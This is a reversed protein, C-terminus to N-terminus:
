LGLEEISKQWIILSNLSPHRLEEANLTVLRVTTSFLRKLRAGGEQYSMDFVIDPKLSALYEEDIVPYGDKPIINEFGALTMLEDGMSGHGAVVLPM